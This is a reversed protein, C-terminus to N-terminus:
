RGDRDLHLDLFLCALGFRFAVYIAIKSAPTQHKKSLYEACHHVNSNPHQLVFGALHLWTLCTEGWDM